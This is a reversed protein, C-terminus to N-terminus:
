RRLHAVAYLTDSRLLRLDIRPQDYLSVVALADGDDLPAVLLYSQLPRDPLELHGLLDSTARPLPRLTSDRGALRLAGALGLRDLRDLRLTVPAEGAVGARVLPDAVVQGEWTGVFGGLDQCGAGALAALLALGSRHLAMPELYCPPPASPM